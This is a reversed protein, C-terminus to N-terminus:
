PPGPRDAGAAYTAYVTVPQNDPAGNVLDTIRPAQTTM